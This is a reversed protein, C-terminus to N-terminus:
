GLNPNGDQFLFEDQATIRKMVNDEGREAAFAQFLVTNGESTQFLQSNDIIRSSVSPHLFEQM